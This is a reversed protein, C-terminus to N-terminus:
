RLALVVLPAALTALVSGVAYAAAYSIAAEPSDSARRVAHLAASSTLGGSVSGWADVPRLGLVRRAVLLAGLVAVANVVLGGVVIEWAVGALTAGLEQGARLGTEGVFLLIGLDRVLQRAERPVHTHFPGLRKQWGLVLGVLLLGGATGLGLQLGFVPVRVSGLLIGLLIGGAYVAIDTEHLSPELRGLRHALQRLDDRRGLVELVDNRQLALEPDPELVLAGREVRTVVCHFRQILRLDELSRGAVEPRRVEIRRSLLDSRELGTAPTEPGVREAFVRLEDVRGRALVRDGAELVTTGDPIVVVDGARLRTVVCGTTRPLDLEALPRGLVDPKQVVFARTVEPSFGEPRTGHSRGDGLEEYARAGRSLDERLLRPLLQILLVVGVLGLPYTLAFAVALRAPDPAVESAAAYAAASTLGGALLGATASPGLGAAAGVAVAALAALVNVLAGVLLFRSARHESFSSVFHPAADFGVSYIFLGFGFLALVGAQPEAPLGLHGLALAAFLTGGAPGLSIGKWDVRGLAYGLTVVLLLGALPIRGLLELLTEVARRQGPAIRRAVGPPRRPSPIGRAADRERRPSRTTSPIATTSSAINASGGTTRIRSSRM